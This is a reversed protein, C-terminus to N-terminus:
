RQCYRRLLFINSPSGHYLLYLRDLFETVEHYYWPISEMYNKMSKVWEPSMRNVDIYPLAITIPCNDIFVNVSNRIFTMKGSVIISKWCALCLLTIIHYCLWIFETKQLPWFDLHNVLRGGVIAEATKSISRFIFARRILEHIVFAYHHHAFLNSRSRYSCAM